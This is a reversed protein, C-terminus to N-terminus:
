DERRHWQKQNKISEHFMDFGLLGLLCQIFISCLIMSVLKICCRLFHFTTNFAKHYCNRSKKDIEVKRLFEQKINMTNERYFSHALCRPSVACPLTGKGQSIHHTNPKKEQHNGFQGSCLLTKTFM